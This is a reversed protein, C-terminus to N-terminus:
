QMSIANDVKKQLNLNFSFDIYEPPSRDSYQIVVFGLINYETLFPIKSPDTDTSSVKLLIKTQIISKQMYEPGSISFAQIRYRWALSLSLPDLVNKNEKAMTYKLLYNIVMRSSDVGKIDVGGWPWSEAFETKGAMSGLRWSTKGNADLHKKV